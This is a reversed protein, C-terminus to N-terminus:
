KDDLEYNDKAVDAVVGDAGGRCCDCTICSCLHCMVRYKREEDIFKRLSKTCYPEANSNNRCIEDDVLFCQLITDVATELVTTFIAAILYALIFAIAAVFLPSFVAEEGVNLFTTKASIAYCALCTISAISLKSIIFVIESMIDLVGMQVGNRSIIQFGHMASTLFSTGYLACQIYAQKNIYKVIMEFIWLMIRVFWALVAVVKNDATAKKLERQAKEFLLRIFQIIAVLLSGFAATGVHFVLTRLVSKAIPLGVVYKKKRRWYWSGVAGAICMYEIALFFQTIWLGGFVHYGFLGRTWRSMTYRVAYGDISPTAYSWLFVAVVVWYAAFLILCFALGIPLVMIQPMASVAKTAEEIIGIARRIRLFLFFVVLLYVVSLGGVGCGFGFMIKAFTTSLGLTKMTQWETYGQWLLFASLGAGALFCFCVCFWVIISTFWRILVLFLFSIILALAASVVIVKWSKYVDNWLRTMAGAAENVASNISAKGNVVTSNLFTFTPFCRHMVSTYSFQSTLLKMQSSPPFMTTNYDTREYACYDLELSGIATSIPEVTETLLEPPCEASGSSAGPCYSVCVGGYTVPQSVDMFWLYKRSSLDERYAEIKSECLNLATKNKGNSDDSIICDPDLPLKIVNTSVNRNDSGCLRGMYDTPTYLLKPRGFVFALVAVAVMGVLFLAFLITCPIDTPRRGKKKIRCHNDDTCSDKLNPVFTSNEENRDQDSDYHDEDDHDSSRKFCSCAM